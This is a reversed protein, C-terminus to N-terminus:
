TGADLGRLSGQSVCPTSAAPSVIGSLTAAGTLTNIRIRGAGGGGAGAAFQGAPVVGNTGNQVAAAGGPGGAATSNDTGGLAPNADPTADQGDADKAGGGGGNAALAGTITATTAEILIAGGSGGASAQQGANTEGSDSGGGGGVNISALSGLTFTGGAVIQIAGGGSGASSLGGVGGASGGVLPRLDSAGYAPSAPPIATTVPGVGNDFLGEGVGQGGTGCFSGGGGSIGAVAGNESDPTGAAKVGAAGGGPGSGKTFGTTQSFGGPGARDFKANALVPGMLTVDHISVIIAPLGGSVSLKATQAVTLSNVVFVHAQTGDSQTAIWEVDSPFCVGGSLDDASTDISCDSTINADGIQSLDHGAITINSPQFPLTPQVLPGGDGTAGDGFIDGGDSTDTSTITCANTMSAAAGILVVASFSFSSVAVKKSISKM